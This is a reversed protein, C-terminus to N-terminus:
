ATAVFVLHAGGPTPVPEMAELGPVRVAAVEHPTRADAEVIARALRGKLAKGAHGIARPGAAGDTVLDVRLLRARGLAEEDIAARQEQALLDVMWADAALRRLTRSVAPRWHRALPGLTPVSAGMKLRYAPIPDGARVLGWMGSVVLLREDVTRRAAAALTGVDLAEWVVGAYRERAPLTPSRDLTRWEELARELTAGRADLLRGAAVADGEALCARVADRVRRRGANLAPISHGARTWPPGDGGPTKGESPPLLIM